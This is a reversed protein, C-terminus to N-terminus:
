RVRDGHPQDITAPYGAPAFATQVRLPREGRRV